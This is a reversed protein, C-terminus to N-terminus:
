TLVVEQRNHNWDLDFEKAYLYHCVRCYLDKNYPAFKALWEAPLPRNRWEHYSMLLADDALVNRLHAGLAEYTPFDAVNIICDRSPLFEYINPAGFYVPVIGAALAGLLKETVYDVTNGNEFAFHLAYHKMAEGKDAPNAVAPWQSNHLCASISRVPIYDQLFQVLEERNNKSHCNRAIFSAAREPIPLVPPTAKGDPFLNTPNLYLAPFTSTLQYTASADFANDLTFASPYYHSGELTSGVSFCKAYPKPGLLADFVCGDADHHTINSLVLCEFDEAATVDPHPCAKRGISKDFSALNLIRYRVGRKIQLFRGPSSFLDRKSRSWSLLCTVIVFFLIAAAIRLLRKKRPMKLSRGMVRRDRM